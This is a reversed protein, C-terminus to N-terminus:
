VSEIWNRFKSFKQQNIDIHLPETSDIIIEFRGEDSQRIKNIFNRNILYQRNARFFIGPDLSNELEILTLNIMFKKGSNDYAFTIKNDTYFAPINDATLLIFDKGKKTLFTKNIKKSNEEM